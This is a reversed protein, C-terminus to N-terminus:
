KAGQTPQGAPNSLTCPSRAKRMELTYLQPNYTRMEKCDLGTHGGTGHRFCYLKRNSVTNPATKKPTTLASVAAALADMRLELATATPPIPAALLATSPLQASNSYASAHSLGASPRLWNPRQSNLYTVAADLTQDALAPTAIFYQNLSEKLGEHSDLSTRLYDIADFNSAPNGCSVLLGLTNQLQRIHADFKHPDSLVASCALKAAKVDNHDIVGYQAHLREMIVRCPVLSLGTIRDTTIGRQIDPGLAALLNSKIDAEVATWVKNNARASKFTLLDLPTSDEVLDEESVFPYDPRDLVHAPVADVGRSAPTAAVSNYAAWEEQSALLGFAGQPALDKAQEIGYALVDMRFQPYNLNPNAGALTSIASTSTSAM